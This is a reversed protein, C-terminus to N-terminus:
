TPGGNGRSLRRRRKWCFWSSQVYVTSARSGVAAVLIRSARSTSFIVRSIWCSLPPLPALDILLPLASEILRGSVIPMVSSSPLLMIEVLSLPMCALWIM